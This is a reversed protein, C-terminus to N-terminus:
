TAPNRHRFALLAAASGLLLLAGPLPVPTMTFSLAFVGPDVGDFRLVNGGEDHDVIYFSISGASDALLALLSSQLAPFPTLDFTNTATADVGHPFGTITLPDNGREFTSGIVVIDATSQLGLYLQGEDVEGTETDGDIIRMTLSLSSVRLDTTAIPSDFTFHGIQDPVDYGSTVVCVTSNPSSCATDFAFGSSGITVEAASAFSGGALFLAALSILKIPSM